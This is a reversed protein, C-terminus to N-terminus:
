EGLEEMEVGVMSGIEELLATNWSQALAWGIPIATCYQYYTDSNEDTYKPDFPEFIDGM